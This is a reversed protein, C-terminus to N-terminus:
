EIRRGSARDYTARVKYVYSPVRYSAVLIDGEARPEVVSSSLIGTFGKQLLSAPYWVAGQVGGGEATSRVLSRTIANIGGRRDLVHIRPPPADGVAREAEAHFEFAWQAALSAPERGLLFDRELLLERSAALVIAAAEPVGLAVVSSLVDGAFQQVSATRLPTRQVRPTVRPPM